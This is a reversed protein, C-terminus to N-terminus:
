INNNLYFLYYYKKYTTNNNLYFNPLFYKKIILKITKNINFNIIFLKNYYYYIM